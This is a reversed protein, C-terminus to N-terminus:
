LLGGDFCCEYSPHCPEYLNDDVFLLSKKLVKLPSKLPCKVFKLLSSKITYQHKSFIFDNFVSLHGWM